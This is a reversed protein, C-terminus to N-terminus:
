RLVPVHVHVATPCRGPLDVAVPRTRSFFRKQSEAFLQQGNAFLPLRTRARGILHCGLLATLAPYINSRRVFFGRWLGAVPAAAAM